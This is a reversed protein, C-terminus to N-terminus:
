FTWIPLYVNIFSFNSKLENQNYNKAQETEPLVAIFINRCWNERQDNIVLM